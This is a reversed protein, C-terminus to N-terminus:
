VKTMQREAAKIHKSVNYRFNWPNTVATTHANATATDIVDLGVEDKHSVSLMATYPSGISEMHAIYKFDFQPAPLSSGYPVVFYMYALPAAFISPDFTLKVTKTSITTSYSIKSGVSLAENCYPYAVNRAISAYNSNSLGKLQTYVENFNDYSYQRQSEKHAFIPLMFSNRDASSMHMARNSTYTNLPDNSISDYIPHVFGYAKGGRVMKSTINAIKLGTSVLRAQVKPHQSDDSPILDAVLPASADSGVYLPILAEKSFLSQLNTKATSGGFTLSKTGPDVTSVVGAADMYYTTGKAYIEYFESLTVIHELDANASTGATSNFTSTTVTPFLSNASKDDIAGSSYLSYWGYPADKAVTPSLWVALQGGTATSGSGPVTLTVTRIDETNYKASERVDGAPVCSRFARASFPDSVAALYKSACEGLQPRRVAPKTSAKSIAKTLKNVSKEIRRKSNKTAGIKPNSPKKNPM